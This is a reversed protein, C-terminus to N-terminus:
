LNSVTKEEKIKKIWLNFFIEAQRDQKDRLELIESESLENVLPGLAKKFEKLSIM